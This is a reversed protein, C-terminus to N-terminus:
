TDGKKGLIQEIKGEPNKKEWALIKVAVVDGDQANANKSNPIFIDNRLDPNM